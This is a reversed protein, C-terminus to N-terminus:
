MSLSVASKPHGWYIDDFIYETKHGKLLSIELHLM